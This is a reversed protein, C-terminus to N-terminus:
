FLSPASRRLSNESGSATAPHPSHGEGTLERTHSHVAVGPPEFKPYTAALTVGIIPRVIVALFLVVAVLAPIVNDPNV